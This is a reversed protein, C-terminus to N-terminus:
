PEERWCFVAKRGAADVTQVALNPLNEPLVCMLPLDPQRASRQFHQLTVM